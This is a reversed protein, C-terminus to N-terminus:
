QILALAGTVILYGAVVYNLMRPVLLIVIGAVISLIPIIQLHLTMMELETAGGQYYPEIHSGITGSGQNV